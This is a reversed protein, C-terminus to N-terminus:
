ISLKKKQITKKKSKRVTNKPKSSLIEKDYIVLQIQQEKTNMLKESHSHKQGFLKDLAEVSPRYGDVCVGKEPPLRYVLVLHKDALKFLEQLKKPADKLWHMVMSAIVVDYEKSPKWNDINGEIAEANSYGFYSLLEKSNEVREPVIEVGTVFNAKAKLAQLGYSFSCSGLDLVKLGKFNVKKSIAKFWKDTPFLGKIVEGNPLPITQYECIVKPQM